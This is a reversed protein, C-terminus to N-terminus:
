HERARKNTLVNEVHDNLKEPGANELGAYERGKNEPEM